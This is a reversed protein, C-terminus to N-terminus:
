IRLIFDLRACIKDRRKLRSYFINNPFMTSEQLKFKFNSTERASFLQLLELQEDHELCFFLDTLDSSTLLHFLSADHWTLMALPLPINFWHGHFQHVLKRAMNRFIAPIMM